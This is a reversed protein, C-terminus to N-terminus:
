LGKLFVGRRVEPYYIPITIKHLLNELKAKVKWNSTIVDNIWHGIEHFLTIIQFLFNRKSNIYIDFIGYDERNRTCCGFWYKVKSASNNAIYPTLYLKIPLKISM